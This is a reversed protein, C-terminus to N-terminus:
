LQDELAEEFAGLDSEESLLFLQNVLEESLNDYDMLSILNNDRATALMVLTDTLVSEAAMTLM